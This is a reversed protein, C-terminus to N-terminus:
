KIFLPTVFIFVIIYIAVTKPAKANIISIHHTIIEIAPDAIFTPSSSQSDTQGIILM